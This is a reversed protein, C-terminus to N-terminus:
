NNYMIIIYYYYNPINYIMNVQWKDACKRSFDNFKIADDPCKAKLDERSTQIFFAYASMRGRPAGQPKKLGRVWKKPGRPMAPSFLLAIILWIIVFIILYHYFQHLYSFLSM